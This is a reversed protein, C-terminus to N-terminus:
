WQDWIHNVVATDLYSKSEQVVIAETETILQDKSQTEGLILRIQNVQQVTLKGIRWIIRKKVSENERCSEAISYSKYTQGKYRSSVGSKSRRGEHRSQKRAPPNNRRQSRRPFCSPKFDFKNESKPALIKLDSLIRKGLCNRHIM